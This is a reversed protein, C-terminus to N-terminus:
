DFHWEIWLSFQQFNIPFIPKKKHYLFMHINSVCMNCIPKIFFIQFTFIAALRPHVEQLIHCTIPHLSYMIIQYPLKWDIRLWCCCSLLYDFSLHSSPTSLSYYYFTFTLSAKHFNYLIKFNYYCLRTKTHTNNKQMYQIKRTSICKSTHPM